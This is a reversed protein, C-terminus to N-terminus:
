NKAFRYGVGYVTQIYDPVRPDDGLKQRLNKVHTDITREYGAFSYGHVRDILEIRSFVRGPNQALLSLLKFETPTLDVGKGAFEVKHGAVDVLLEGIAIIDDEESGKLTEPFARRLVAQVRAVLERPSFPKTIYDDAGLKLGVVRDIEESKASLMIIPVTSKQRILRCVDEGPLGPLMLDLVILDFQNREVEKLSAEGDHVVTTAYGERELYAKIVNTIKEEDDVVLIHGKPM